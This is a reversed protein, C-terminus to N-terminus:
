FSTMLLPHEVAADPAALALAVTAVVGGAPVLVAAVVSAADAAVVFLSSMVVLDAAEVVIAALHPYPSPHSAVM